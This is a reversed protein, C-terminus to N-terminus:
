GHQVALRQHPMADGHGLKEGTRAGAALCALGCRLAGKAAAADVLPTGMPHTTMWSPLPIGFWRCRAPVLPLYASMGQWDGVALLAMDKRV